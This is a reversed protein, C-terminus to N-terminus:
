QLRGGSEGGGGSEKLGEQHAILVKRLADKLKRNEKERVKIEEQLQEIYELGSELLRTHSWSKYNGITSAPLLEKLQEFGTRLSIRRQREAERHVRRGREQRENDEPDGGVISNISRRRDAQDQSIQGNYSSSSSANNSGTLSAQGTSTLDHNAVLDRLFSFTSDSMTRSETPMISANAHSSSTSTSTTGTTNSPMTFLDDQLLLSQLFKDSYGALVSNATSANTTTFSAQNDSGYNQFQFYDPTSPKPLTPTSVRPLSPPTDSMNPIAPPPTNATPYQPLIPTAITTLLPSHMIDHQQQQPQPQSHLQQQPQLQYQNNLFPSM